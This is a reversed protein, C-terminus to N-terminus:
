RCSVTYELAERGPLSDFWCVGEQVLALQLIYDGPDAPPMIFMSFEQTSAAPLSPFIHSRMGDFIAVERKERALWHYALNVPHPWASMLPREGGNTIRVQIWFPEACKATSSVRETTLAVHAMEDPSLEQMELLETEAHFPVVAPLPAEVPHYDEFLYYYGLGGGPRLQEYKRVKAERNERSSLHLVHHHIALSRFSGGRGAIRMPEHIKSPFTIAGKSRFLRLQFDPWWPAAPLYNGLPTLWRRPLWFHTFEPANLFCRWQGDRWEPSLEEDSDIRLIWDTRCAEVMTRLHAQIHADLM